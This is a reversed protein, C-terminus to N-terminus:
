NFLFKLTLNPTIGLSKQDIQQPNELNDLRYYTNLTNERDLINWVSLGAQLGTNNGLNTNYIASIDVRLYDEVREGNVDAFNLEGDTVESGTQPQTYPKGTRWNFGAALHLSETSFTLGSSLAHTIDFNSRFEPEQLEPFIYQSDLYGYSMWMNWNSLQKRLLLELGSAEYEGSSRVFEYRDQFGQSQTTIGDVKKLYGVTNVLWGNNRYSLGISGQKSQIIPIDENNSLQWRRKEIGLFDNQFNIIQSTNQHKFEGLVELNIYAGIRQNFSLRPEWLQRSFKELHNFRMGANLSTGTAPLKWGLESFVGHTRLVEGVLRRFVPNDVDDLNTIKTEVFHYGNRWVLNGRLQYSALFRAGTESIINEQLFRQSDLINANIARLKYDTEYVSLETSLGPSWRRKYFVGGAISRQNLSSERIEESNNVQASENFVVENATHIFNLRIFDKDSPQFLLRMSADYFDFEINSNSVSVVNSEIETDQAIREFYETYTPTEVFDSIAKRAAFQVSSNKGLPVDAFGNADILNIGLSGKFDPNINQRTQMAITGSVGDTLSASTGNKQLSVRQTIQPNYMSILGFFHGSQYMKIDDWIILNQDNSGGRININSVTEDVSHIGPLAQVSQLVDEEVLGPLISFKDFDLQFSGNDLKDLGRILYDSLIIEALQEQEPVLYIIACDGPNFFRAERRLTKHGIHRLIIQQSSNEIALEFYGEENAVTGQGDVQITTFPVPKGTDKDRIRGCIMGASERISIIRDSIFEFNLGTQNQLEKVIDNIDESIQPLIVQKGEVIDSAYNFQVQFREQLINLVELLPKDQATQQGYLTNCVPM